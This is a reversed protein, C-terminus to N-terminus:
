SKKVAISGLEEDGGDDGAPEVTLVDDEAFDRVLLREVNHFGDFGGTAIGALDFVALFGGNDCRALQLSFSLHGRGEGKKRMMLFSIVACSSLEIPM